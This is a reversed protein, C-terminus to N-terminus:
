QELYVEQQEVTPVELSVRWVIVADGMDAATHPVDRTHLLLEKGGPIPNSRKGSEALRFGFTNFWMRSATNSYSGELKIVWILIM